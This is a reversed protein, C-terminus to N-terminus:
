REKLINNCLVRQNITSILSALDDYSISIADIRYIELKSSITKFGKPIDRIGVLYSNNLKFEYNKRYIISKIEDRYKSSIYSYQQPKIFFYYNKKDSTKAWCITEDPLSKEKNFSSLVKKATFLPYGEGDRKYFTLKIGDIRIIGTRTLSSLSSYLSSFQIDLNLRSIRKLTLM